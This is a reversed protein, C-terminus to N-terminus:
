SNLEEQVIQSVVKGDAAGAFAVLVPKMVKGMDRPGTAGLEAIVAKVKKRIEDPSAQKPLFANLIEIEAREKEALDQRGGKEFQEISDRRQKCLTGIVSLVEADGLEQRKEIEKNKIASQLMRIAGLRLSDKAKMSAVMMTHIEGKLKSGPM